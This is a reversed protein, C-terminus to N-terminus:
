QDNIYIFLIMSRHNHVMSIFLTWKVLRWKQMYMSIIKYDNSSFPTGNNMRSFITKTKQWYIMSKSILDIIWTIHRQNLNSICNSCYIMSILLIDNIETHFLHENRMNVKEQFTINIIPINLLWKLQMVHAIM